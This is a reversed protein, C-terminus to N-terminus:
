QKTIFHGYMTKDLVADHVFSFEEHKDRTDGLAVLLCSRPWRSANVEREGGQLNLNTWPFQTIVEDHVM